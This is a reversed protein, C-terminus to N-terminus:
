CGLLSPPPGRMGCYWVDTPGVVHDHVTWRGSQFRMVAYVTLGDREGADPLHRADIAGGGPRQPDAIVLAWGQEVGLRRVVFEVPSRLERVITPRLADLIARRQASNVPAAASGNVQAAAPAAAAAAAALMALALLAPRRM